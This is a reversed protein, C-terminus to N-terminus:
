RRQQRPRVPHRDPREGVPRRRRRARPRGRRGRDRRAGDATGRPDRAGPRAPRHRDDDRGLHGAPLRPGAWHGRLGRLDMAFIAPDDAPLPPAADPTSPQAQPCRGRLTASTSPDPPRYRCGPVFRRPTGPRARDTGRRRARPAGSRGGRPRPQRDRRRARGLDRGSGRSASRRDPWAALAVDFPVAGAGGPCGHRPRGTPSRQRRRMAAGRAPRAPRATRDYAAPLGDRRPGDRRADLRGAPGAPRGRRRAAAARQRRCAPRVSSSGASFGGSTRTSRGSRGGSPSPPSRERPTRGSARCRSSRTSIPHCSGASSM